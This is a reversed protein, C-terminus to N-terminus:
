ASGGEESVRPAPLETVDLKFTGPAARREDRMAFGAAVFLGIAADMALWVGAERVTPGPGLDPPWIVRIVALVSALLGALCAFVAATIPIAPTDQTLTAVFLGVGALGAILFIVDNVAMSQWANFSGVADSAAVYTIGGRTITAAAATPAVLAKYWPAWLLGILAAGFLGSFWDVARLRRLDV